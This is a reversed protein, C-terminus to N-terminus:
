VSPSTFHSRLLSSIILEHALASATSDLGVQQLAAIVRAGESPAVWGLHVPQILSAAILGVEGIRGAEAAQELALLGLASLRHYPASEDSFANANESSNALRAVWDFSPTSVGAAKLVPLLSWCGLRMMLEADWVMNATLQLVAQIDNAKQSAADLVAPLPQSPAAIALIIAYDAARQESLTAAETIELRQRILSAYLDILLDIRGAQTERRLAQAILMDTDEGQRTALGVWLYASNLGLERLHSGWEAQQNRLSALAAEAPVPATLLSRWIQETEVATQVNRLLMQYSTNLAADPALYRFSSAAQIMSPPLNEFAAASIQEHAADMLVLHLLSVDDLDLSLTTPRGLLKDVLQFFNDDQEGSARLIDAAFSAAGLQGDLLACIVRAKHWFPDLTQLAFREADSCAAKDARRVMDYEIQWRKWESWEKDLPLLRVLQSLKDSQGSRALWDLRAKVLQQALKGSNKPPVATQVTIASTLALLAASSGSAPTAKLLALTQEADSNSWILSNIVPDVSTIQNLGISALGVKSISRRGVRGTAVSTQDVEKDGAQAKVGAQGSNLQNDAKFQASDGLDGFAPTKDLQSADTESDKFNVLDTLNVPARALEREQEAALQSAGFLQLFCICLALFRASVKIVQRLAPRFLSIKLVNM